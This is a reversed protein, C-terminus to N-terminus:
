GRRREKPAELAVKHGEIEEVSLLGQDPTDPKYTPDAVFPLPNKEVRELVWRVCPERAIVNKPGFDKRLVHNWAHIVKKLEIPEGKGMDHLILERIQEESPKDNMPHGLQRLALMSNYNICGNIGILPVNHYEGFRYVIKEYNLNRSYWVISDANLARLKQAWEHRTLDKVLYSAKHLHSMLWTFLVQVFFFLVGKKKECCTHLTYYINALITLTTDKGFVKVFYFVHIAAPDVHNVNKPLLVVGFMLLALINGTIEWQKKQAYSMAQAELFSRKIGQVEGEVKYHLILDTIPIGLARDLDVVKVKKGIGTYTEKKIMSFELIRDVEELTLALQFDQFTFCRLPIDYFQVLATIAEEQVKVRLLDLIDGYSDAFKELAKSPLKEKIIKLKKVDPLSVTIRFIQKKESSM